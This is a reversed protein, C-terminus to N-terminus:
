AYPDAREKETIRGCLVWVLVACAAINSLAVCGTFARLMQDDGAVISLAVCSATALASWLVLRPYNTDDRPRAVALWLFPLWCLLGLTVVPVATLAVRLRPNM